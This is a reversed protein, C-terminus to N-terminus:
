NSRNQTNFQSYSFLTGRSCAHEGISGALECISGALECISGALECISGAHESCKRGISGVNREALTASFFVKGIFQAFVFNLCYESVIKETM